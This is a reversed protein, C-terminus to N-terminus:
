RLLLAYFNHQNGQAEKENCQMANLASCTQKGESVLFYKSVQNQLVGSRSLSLPLVLFFDLM